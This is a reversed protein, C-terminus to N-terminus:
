CFEKKLLYAFCIINPPLCINELLHFCKLFTLTNIFIHCLHIPSSIFCLCRYYKLITPLVVELVSKTFLLRTTKVSISIKNEKFCQYCVFIDCIYIGWWTSVLDSLFGTM